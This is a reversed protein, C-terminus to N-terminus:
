MTSISLLREAFEHPDLRLYRVAAASWAQANGPELGGEPTASLSALDLHVHEDGALDPRGEDDHRQLARRIAIGLVPTLGFGESTTLAISRCAIRSIATAPRISSAMTPWSTCSRIASRFTGAFAVPPGDSVAHFQSGSFSPQLLHLGPVELRVDNGDSMDWANGLATTAFDEGGTEDPDTIRLTPPANIRFTRDVSLGGRWIRLTYSGPPLVGYNWNFSTGSFDTAITLPTGAADLVQVDVTGSGGYWPDAAHRCCPSQRRPSGSGTTISPTDLRATILYLTPRQHPGRDVPQWRRAVPDSGCRLHQRRCARRREAALQVWAM